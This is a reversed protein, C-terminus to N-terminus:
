QKTEAGQQKDQMGQDQGNQPEAQMGSNGQNQSGGAGVGVPQKAGEQASKQINQAAESAEIGAAKAAEQLTSTTVHRPDGHDDDAKNCGCSMCM